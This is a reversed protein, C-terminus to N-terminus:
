SAFDISKKLVKHYTCFRLFVSLYFSTVLLRIFFVFVFMYKIAIKSNFYSLTITRVPLDLTNATNPMWSDYSEPLNYWHMMINNGQKFSPRAYEDQEDPLLDTEPYIIHTAQNEHETIKCQRAKLFNTVKQRLNEDVEPRIFTNPLRICKQEILKQTIAFAIEIGNKESETRFEVKGCSQDLKYRYITYFIYCLSGGPKFDLFCRNPLRM